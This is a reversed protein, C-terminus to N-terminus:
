TNILELVKNRMLEQYEFGKLSKGKREIIKEKGYYEVKIAPFENKFNLEDWFDSTFLTYPLVIYKPSFQINPTFQLEISYVQDSSQIEGNMVRQYLQIIEKIPWCKRIFNALKNLDVEDKLYSQNNEYLLKVLGKITKEDPQEHTFNERKFGTKFKYRKFGGSDFPLVRKLKKLEVDKAEYILTIPPDNTYNEAEDSVLYSPKGYFFYILQENWVPCTGPSSLFRSMFINMFFGETTTHCLPLLEIDGAILSQEDIVDRFEQFNKMLKSKLHM